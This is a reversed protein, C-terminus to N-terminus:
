KPEPIRLASSSSHLARILDYAGTVQADKTVQIAVRETGPGLGWRKVTNECTFMVLQSSNVQSSSSTCFDNRSFTNRKDLEFIIPPRLEIYTIAM